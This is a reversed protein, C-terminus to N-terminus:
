KQTSILPHAKKQKRFKYPINRHVNWFLIIIKDFMNKQEMM